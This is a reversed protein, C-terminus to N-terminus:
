KEQAVRILSIEILEKTGDNNEIYGCEFSYKDPNKILEKYIKNAKETPSFEIKGIPLETHNFNESLIIANNKM